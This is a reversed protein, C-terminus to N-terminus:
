KRDSQRDPTLKRRKKWEDMKDMHKEFTDLTMRYRTDGDLYFRDLMAVLEKKDIPKKVYGAVYGSTARDWKEEDEYATVLIVGIMDDSYSKRMEELFQLGDVDPMKIDLLILSIRNPKLFRKNKKLLEFANKASYAAISDYKGTNLIIGSLNDAVSPEDDVVLILPKDM